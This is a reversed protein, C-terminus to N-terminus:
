TNGGECPTNEIKKLALHKLVPHIIFYTEEKTYDQLFSHLTGMKLYQSLTKILVQSRVYPEYIYDINVNKEPLPFTLTLIINGEDIGENLFIASASIAGDQLISYYATTSGRYEPLLGAHIHIFQKDMHFLPAKLISGGYGSYIIYHQTLNQLVLKMEKSNIDDTELIVYPINARKLTCTISESTNFYLNEIDSHGNGYKPLYDQNNTYVICLSPYLEANVMVQLYAQSRTTVAAVMAFDNLIM